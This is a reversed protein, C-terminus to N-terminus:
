STSGRDRGDARTKSGPTGDSMPSSKEPAPVRMVCRGEVESRASRSAPGSGDHAAALEDMFQRIATRILVSKPWGLERCVADIEENEPRPFLADVVVYGATRPNSRLRPLSVGGLSPPPTGGQGLRPRRSAQGVNFRSQPATDVPWTGPCSTFGRLGQGSQKAPTPATLTAESGRRRAESPSQGATRRIASGLDELTKRTLPM